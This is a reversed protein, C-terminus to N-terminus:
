ASTVHVTKGDFVLAVQYLPAAGAERLAAAYDRERLQTHAEHLASDVSQHHRTDRVKLELAVGPLGPRRPLVLVDCRGAGSERNSRVDHTQSLDVLLGLVFGHYFKEPPRATDHFSVSAMLWAQVHREVTEADGPAQAFAPM